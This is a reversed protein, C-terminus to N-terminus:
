SNVTVYHQQFTPTTIPRWNGMSDRYTFIVKSSGSIMTSPWAHFTFTSTEHSADAFPVTPICGQNVMAGNVIQEECITTNFAQPSENQATVEFGATQGTQLNLM